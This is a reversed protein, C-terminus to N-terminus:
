CRLLVWSESTPLRPFDTPVQNGLRGSLTPRTSIIRPYTDYYHQTILQGGLSVTQLRNLDADYIYFLVQNKADTSSTLLDRSNYVMSMTGAGPVKKATLRGEADYNYGFLLDGAFPDINAGIALQSVAKPPVVVRLRGYADYGYHARLGATERAVVLDRRDRYELSRNGSEDTTETVTLEGAAYASVVARSAAFDYRLRFVEGATSVLYRYAMAPGGGPPTKAAVRDLPSPEYQIQVYAPGSKDPLGGYYAAQATTAAAVFQGPANATAFPLYERTQRGLADYAIPQVLDTVQGAQGNGYGGAQASVRQVPRGLGDLYTVTQSVSGGDAILALNKAVYNRTTSLPQSGSITPYDTDRVAPLDCDTCGCATASVRLAYERLCTADTSSAVKYRYLGAALPRVFVTDM